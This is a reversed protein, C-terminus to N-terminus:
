LLSMLQFAFHRSKKYEKIGKFAPTYSVTHQFIGNMGQVVIESIIQIISM